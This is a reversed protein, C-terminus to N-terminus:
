NKKHISIQPRFARITRVSKGGSFIRVTGTSESITIAVSKTHHSIALAAAHRAGLGRMPSSKGAGAHLFRGASLVVGDERIIFAGDIQTLEKISEQVKVDFINTEEPSYGKFPNFIMPKSLELVKETDGVVFITGVPQGERGEQGIEIALNVILFLLDVPISKSIRKLDHPSIPGYYEQIRVVRMTDIVKQGSLSSLCLIREGKKVKEAEVAARLIHDLRDRRTVGNFDSLFTEVTITEALKKKSLAIIFQHDAYYPLLAKWLSLSECVVLIKKIKLKEALQTAHEILLQTEKDTTRESM